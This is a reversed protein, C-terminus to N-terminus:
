GRLKRLVTAANAYMSGQNRVSIGGRRVTLSYDETPPHIVPDPPPTVVGPGGTPPSGGQLYKLYAGSSYTSWASWGQGQYIRWAARAQGLIGSAILHRPTGFAAARGAYLSGYYNIQWAGVSYDGTSPTDNIVTLDRSSEATAIAAAVKGGNPGFGAVRAANVADDFSAYKPPGYPWIDGM